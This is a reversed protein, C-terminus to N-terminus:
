EVTFKDFDLASWKINLNFSSTRATAILLQFFHIFSLYFSLIPISWISKLKLNLQIEDNAARVQIQFAYLSITKQDSQTFRSSQSTILCGALFSKVFPLHILSYTQLDYDSLRPCYIHSLTLTQTPFKISYRSMTIFFTIKSYSLPEKLLSLLNSSQTLEDYLQDYQLHIKKAMIQEQCKLLAQLHHNQHVETRM